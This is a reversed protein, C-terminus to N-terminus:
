EKVEKHSVAGTLVDKFEQLRTKKEIKEEEKVEPKIEETKMVEREIIVEPIFDVFPKKVEVAEGEPIFDRVVGM